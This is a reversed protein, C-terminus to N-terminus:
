IVPMIVKHVFEIIKGIESQTHTGGDVGLWSHHNVCHNFLTLLICSHLIWLTNVFANIFSSHRYQAVCRYIRMVYIYKMKGATIDYIYQLITNLCNDSVKTFEVNLASSYLMKVIIHFPPPYWQVLSHISQIHVAHKGSANKWQM